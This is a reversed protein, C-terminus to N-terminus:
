RRSAAPKRTPSLVANSLQEVAKFVMEETIASRRTGLSAYQRVAAVSGPAHQDAFLRRLDRDFRQWWSKSVDARLRGALAALEPLADRFTVAIEYIYGCDKDCHAPSRGQDRILVKQMVYSAPNPVRVLTNAPLTALEPVRRTEVSWPEFLLLDLYRLQQATVDGQISAAVQRKGSRRYESGKLPCLFEIELNPDSKAVFKIIPPAHEPHVDPTLGADHLLDSLPPRGRRSVRDVTALDIDTTGLVPVSTQAALAHHRLLANSVGGIVVIDDLYPHLHRLASRLLSDLGRDILAM